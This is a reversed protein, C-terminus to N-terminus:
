NLIAESKICHACFNSVAFSKWMKAWGDTQIQRFRIAKLTVCFQLHEIRKKFFNEIYTIRNSKKLAESKHGNDVM